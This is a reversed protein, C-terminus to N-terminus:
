IKPPQMNNLQRRRRSQFYCVAAAVIAATAAVSGLVALLIVWWSTKGDGEGPFRDVTLDWDRVGVIIDQIGAAFFGVFANETTTRGALGLPADLLAKTPRPESAGAVRVSLRHAAADYEVWVTRGLATGNPTVTVNLGVAPEDPGYSRVPGAVVSALSGGASSAGDDPSTYNAFGRLGGWGYLPFRNNLVVFAVPAAGALTFSTNFSAELAPVGGPGPRWVGVTGSLLLFGETRNFEAFAGDHDFLLAAPLLVSTNTAAVLDRTTTGDFAPYSFTDVRAAAAAGSIAAAYLVLVALWRMETTTTRDSRAMTSTAM